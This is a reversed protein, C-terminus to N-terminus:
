QIPARDRTNVELAGRFAAAAAEYRAADGSM